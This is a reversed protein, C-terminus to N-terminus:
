TGTFTLNLSTENETREIIINGLDDSEVDDRVAVLIISRGDVSSGLDDVDSGSWLYKKKYLTM